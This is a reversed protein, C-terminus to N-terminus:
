PLTSACSTPPATSATARASPLPWCSARCSPPRGGNQLLEHLIDPTNPWLNPRFFEKVDTKTLETFYETLEWASNRWPFYNYSQSFGIKALYYM